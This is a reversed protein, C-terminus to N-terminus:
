ALYAKIVQFCAKKKNPNRRRNRPRSIDAPSTRNIFPRLRYKLKKFLPKFNFLIWRGTAVNVVNDRAVLLGGVGVSAVTM